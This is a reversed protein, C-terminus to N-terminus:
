SLSNDQLVYDLKVQPNLKRVSGIVRRQAASADDCSIVLIKQADKAFFQAIGYVMLETNSDLYLAQHLTLRLSSVRNARLYLLVKNAEAIDTAKLLRCEVHFTMEGSFKNYAFATTEVLQSM